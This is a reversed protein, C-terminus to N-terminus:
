PLASQIAALRAGQADNRAAMNEASEQHRKQHDVILFPFLVIAPSLAIALYLSVKHKLSSRFM